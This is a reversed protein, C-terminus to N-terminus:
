VSNEIAGVAAPRHKRDPTVLFYRAALEPLTGACEVGYVKRLAPAILGPALFLGAGAAGFAERLGADDFEGVVRPALGRSALWTEVLRRAESAAGPLLLPAGTLSEPFRSQVRRVLARTGFVGVASTALLKVRLGTAAAPAGTALVADLQRARLDELLRSENGERCLLRPPPDLALVPELLQRAVLKPVIEDIGVAFSGERGAGSELARLLDEGRSLMDTAYDLVLRGADNLRLSRGVRDFLPRGLNQELVRLQGSVTQPAVALAAAAGTVSGTQAVARLYALQVLDLRRLNM